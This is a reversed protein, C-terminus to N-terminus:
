KAKARRAAEDIVAALKAVEQLTVMHCTPSNSMIPYGM